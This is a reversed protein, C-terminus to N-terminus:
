PRDSDRLRSWLASDPGLEALEEQVEPSEDPFVEHVRVVDRGDPRRVLDGPPREDSFWRVPVGSLSVSLLIEPTVEDIRTWEDVVEDLIEEPIHPAYVVTTDFSPIESFRVTEDCVTDLYDGESESVSIAGIRSDLVEPHDMIPEDVFLAIADFRESMEKPDSFSRYSRTTNWDSSETHVTWEASGHDAVSSILEPDVGRDELEDRDLPVEKLLSWGLTEAVDYFETPVEYIDVQDHLDRVVAERRENLTKGVYVPRDRRVIEHVADRQRRGSYRSRTSKLSDTRHHVYTSLRDDSWDIEELAGRHVRWLDEEILSSLDSGHDDVLDRLDSEAIELYTEEVWDLFDDWDDEQLRRRDNTPSPLDDTDRRLNFAFGCPFKRPIRPSEIKIGHYLGEVHPRRLGTSSWFVLDIEPSSWVRCPDEIEDLSKGGVTYSTEPLDIQIEVDLYEFVNSIQSAIKVPDVDDRLDVRVTTGPEDRSDDIESMEDSDYRVGFSEDTERSRTVLEATEDEALMLIAFRGIGYSGLIEPRDARDRTSVRRLKEDARERPIGIGNDSIRLTGERVEFLLEGDSKDMLGAEVAEQIAAYGNALTERAGEYRSQYRENVLYDRIRDEEM